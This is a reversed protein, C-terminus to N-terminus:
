ATARAQVRRAGGADWSKESNQYANSRAAHHAELYDALTRLIQPDEGLLGIARNCQDCLWGRFQGTAHDHDFCIRQGNAGKCVECVTPRCRTAAEDNIRRARAAQYKRAYARRHETKNYDHQKKRILEVNAQYYLANRKNDCEKCSPQLGNKSQTQKPFGDIRKVVGCRTCRKMGDIIPHIPTWPM